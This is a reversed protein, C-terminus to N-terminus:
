FTHCYVKEKEKRREPNNNFFHSVLGLDELTHQGIWPLFFPGEICDTERKIEIPWGTSKFMREKSM